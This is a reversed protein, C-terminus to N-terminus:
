TLTPASEMPITTSWSHKQRLSRRELMQSYGHSKTTAIATQELAPRKRTLRPRVLTLSLKKFVKIVRPASQLLQSIALQQLTTGDAPEQSRPLTRRRLQHTGSTPIKSNITLMAKITMMRGNLWTGTLPRTRGIRHMAPTSSYTKTSRQCLTTSM